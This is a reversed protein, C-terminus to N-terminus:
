AVELKKELIDYIIHKDAYDKTQMFINSKNILSYSLIYEIDRNKVIEVIKEINEQEVFTCDLVDDPTLRM